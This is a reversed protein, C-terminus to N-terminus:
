SVALRRMWFSGPHRTTRDYSPIMAELLDPHRYHMWSGGWVVEFGTNGILFAQLLYQENWFRHEDVLWRRPYEYPLFIDHVHVLVGAPLRPLVELFEYQVDSGTRLVHSSDIFLIDGPELTRFTDLSVDQLQTVRLEVLPDAGVERVFDYPYPEIAEIRGAAGEEVNRRLAALSCLTSWGSGIEVIRRPRSRRVLGYLLEGDVSEFALNNVFYELPGAPERPLANFEAGFDAHLGRLLAVQEDDRMDIGPLESARDFLGEPLERTDPIPSYFHNATLHWGAQEWAEFPVQEALRRVLEETGAPTALAVEVTPDGAPPPRHRGAAPRVGRRLRAAASRASRAAVRTAASRASGMVM